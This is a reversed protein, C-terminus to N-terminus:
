SPGMRLFFISVGAGILVVVLVAGFLKMRKGSVGKAEDVIPVMPM